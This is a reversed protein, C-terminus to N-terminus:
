ARVREGPEAQADGLRAHLPLVLRVLAGREGDTRDALELRGHHDEMVRRVIALGLGTGKERTTMYPEALQERPADPWGVGNDTVEVVACGDDARLAVKITAAPSKAGPEEEERAAVSEAANKLVNALAQTVLREDCFVIVLTEPADIQVDINPSAVRQTFAAARVLEGMEISAPKPEPMRAFASFEDVMRGIDNVQRM